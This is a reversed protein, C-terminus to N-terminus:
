LLRLSGCMCCKARPHQNKNIYTCIHCNWEKIASRSQRQRKPLAESLSNAEALSKPSSRKKMEVKMTQDITRQGQSSKIECSTASGTSSILSATASATMTDTLDILDTAESANSVAPGGQAQQSVEKTVSESLDEFLAEGDQNEPLLEDTSEVSSSIAPKTGAKPSMTSSLSGGIGENGLRSGGESVVHSRNSKPTDSGRSVRAKAILKAFGKDMEDDFNPDGSSVKISDNDASQRRSEKLKSMANASKKADYKSAEQSKSSEELNFKAIIERAPKPAISDTEANWMDVFRKHRDKLECDTGYTLLGEEKCIRVLDKKKLKGYMPKFKKSLPIPNTSLKAEQENKQTDKKNAAAVKSNRTNRIPRDNEKSESSDTAVDQSKENLAQVSNQFCKVAAQLTLNPILASDGKGVNCRCVPCSTKRVTGSTMQQRFHNRICESCFSHGCTRESIMVANSLLEKCINCRLSEDLENLEPPVQVDDFLLEDNMNAASSSTSQHKAIKDGVVSDVVAFHTIRHNPISRQVEKM